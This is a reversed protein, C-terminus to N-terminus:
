FMHENTTRTSYLDFHSSSCLGKGRPQEKQRLLQGKIPTHPFTLQRTCDMLLVVCGNLLSMGSSPETHNHLYELLWHNLVISYARQQLSCEWVLYYYGPGSNFPMLLLLQSLPLQTCLALLTCHAIDITLIIIPVSGYSEACIADPISATKCNSLLQCLLHHQHQHSLCDM